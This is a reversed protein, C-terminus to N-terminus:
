GGSDLWVQLLCLLSCKCLCLLRRDWLSPPTVSCSPSVFPVLCNHSPQSEPFIRGGRYRALYNDKGRKKGEQYIYMAGVQLIFWDIVGPTELLLRFHYIVAKCEPKHFINWGAPTSANDLLWHEQAQPAPTLARLCCLAAVLLLIRRCHFHRSWWPSQAASCNTCLINVYPDSTANGGPRLKFTWPLECPQYNHDKKTSYNGWTWEAQILILHLWYGRHCLSLTCM